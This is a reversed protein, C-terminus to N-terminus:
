VWKSILYLSVLHLINDHVIYLWPLPKGVNMTEVYWEVLGTRDLVYHSAYVLIAHTWDWWGTFLLISLTVLLCHVTCALEGRLTKKKKNFAMWDNQLLYDGVFYGIMWDM